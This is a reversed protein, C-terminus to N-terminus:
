KVYEKQAKEPNEWYMKLGKSVEEWTKGVLMTCGVTVIFGNAVKQIQVQQPLPLSLSPLPAASFRTNAATAMFRGEKITTWNFDSM